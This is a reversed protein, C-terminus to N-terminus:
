HIPLKRSQGDAKKPLSLNLVGGDYSAEAKAADVPGPLTFSRYASGEYRESYLEKENDAKQERKVEASVTVLNGDITVDLDEKKVGPVNVKVRYGQNDESVDLRMDLANEYQRALPSPSGLGRVLGEFESFPDFRAIQRFPNWRTPSTM